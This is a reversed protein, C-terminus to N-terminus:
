RRPCPKRLLDRGSHRNEEGKKGSKIGKTGKSADKKKRKIRKFFIIVKPSKIV